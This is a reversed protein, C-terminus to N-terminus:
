QGDQELVLAKHDGSTSVHCEFPALTLRGSSGSSGKITPSLSLASSSGDPLPGVACKTHRPWLRLGCQEKSLLHGLRERM